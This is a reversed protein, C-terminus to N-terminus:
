GFLVQVRYKLWELLFIIIELVIFIFGLSLFFNFVSFSEIHRKFVDATEYRPFFSVIADHDSFDQSVFRFPYGFSVDKMQSSDDARMPVFFTALVLVVSFLFLVSHKFIGSM